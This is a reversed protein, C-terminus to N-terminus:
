TPIHAVPMATFRRPRRVHPLPADDACHLSTKPLLMLMNPMLVAPADAPLMTPTPTPTPLAYPRIFILTPSAAPTAIAGAHRARLRSRCCRTLRPPSQRPCAMASAAAVHRPSARRCPPSSYPLGKRAPVVRLPGHVTPRPPLLSLLIMYIFYISIAYRRRCPDAYYFRM